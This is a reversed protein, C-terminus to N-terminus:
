AVKSVRVRVFQTQTDRDFNGTTFRFDVVDGEQLDDFGSVMLFRDSTTGFSKTGLPFSQAGNVYVYVSIQGDIVVDSFEFAMEIWFSYIGDAKAVFQEDSIIESQKDAQTEGFKIKLAQSLSVGAPVPQSTNNRTKIFSQNPMSVMGVENITLGRYINHLPIYGCVLDDAREDEIESQEVFSKGAIIRVQAVSMEFVYSDRTLSPLVPNSAPTGKKVYAYIRREAPNNDFCIVIRDIRDNNPDAIAHTLTMTSDNEYMYGNAFMFGAGLAIEMNTKATVELNPLNPDNSVGNGIIQGHFRAWDAAQYVRQDDATSDFFYMREM